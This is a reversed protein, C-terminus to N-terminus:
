CVFHSLVPSTSACGIQAVVAEAVDDGRVPLMTCRKSAFQDVQGICPEYADESKPVKSLLHTLTTPSLLDHAMWINPAASLREAGHSAPRALDTLTLSFLSAAFM